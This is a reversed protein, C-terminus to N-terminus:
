RSSWQEMGGNYSYAYHSNAAEMIDYFAWYSTPVDSFHNVRYMNTFIAQKDPKRGVARNTMTVMEARSVANDPRFTGDQYGYIWGMSNAYAIQAATKPHAQVWYYNIDTFNTGYGSYADADINRFRFLLDLYEARTIPDNPRFYGSNDLIGYAQAWAIYDAYWSNAPVDYFTPTFGDFDSETQGYFLRTLMVVAQARSTKAYPDFKGNGIGAIYANHYNDDWEPPYIPTEPNGKQTESTVTISAPLSSFEIEWDGNSKHEVYYARNNLVFRTTLRNLVVSDTSTKLTVSKISYNKDPSVTVTVREGPRAYSSHDADHTITSHSDPKKTISRNGGYYDSEASVTMNTDIDYLTIVVRGNAMWNIPCRTGNITLYSDDKDATYTKGNRTVKLKEITCDDEPVFTLQYVDGDEVTVTGEDSCSIGDDVKVTLKITMDKVSPDIHVNSKLDKLYLYVIGDSTKEMRYTRGGLRFSTDNSSVRASDDGMSINIYTIDYDDLPTLIVTADEGRGVWTLDEYNSSVHRDNEVSVYYSGYSSVAEVSVDATAKPIELVIKGDLRRDIRYTRGGINVSSDEAIYLTKAPYNGDRIILKYVSYGNDPTFVVESTEDSTIVDDAKYSIHGDTSVSLDYEAAKDTTLATIFVDDVVNQCSVSVSGDKMKNIQYTKGGVSVTGTKADVLNTQNSYGTRINLKKIDQGVNPQFTISMDDGGAIINGSGSVSCTPTGGQDQGSNMRGSNGTVTYSAPATNLFISMDDALNSTSLFLGKSDGATSVELTYSTGNPLSGKLNGNTSWSGADEEVTVGTITDKSLDFVKQKSLASGSRFSFDDVLTNNVYIEVTKDDSSAAYAPAVTGAVMLSALGFAFIRKKMRKPLFCKVIGEGKLEKRLRSKAKNKVLVVSRQRILSLRESMFCVNRAM